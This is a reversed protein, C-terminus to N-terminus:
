DKLFKSLGEASEKLAKTSSSFTHVFINQYNKFATKCTQLDTGTILLDSVSAPHTIRNRIKVAKVFLEWEIKNKNIKIPAYNVYSFIELIFAAKKVFSLKRRIIKGTKTKIGIIIEEEKKNLGLYDVQNACPTCLCRSKVLVKETTLL